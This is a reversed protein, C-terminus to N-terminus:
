KAESTKSAAYLIKITACAFGKTSVGPDLERVLFWVWAGQMSLRSNWGSSWWSIGILGKLDLCVHIGDSLM